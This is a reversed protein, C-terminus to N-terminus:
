QNVPKGINYDFPDKGSNMNFLLRTFENSSEGSSLALKINKDFVGTNQGQRVKIAVQLGSMLPM